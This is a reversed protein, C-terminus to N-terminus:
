RLEIPSSCPGAIWPCPKESRPAALPLPPSSLATNAGVGEAVSVTVPYRSETAPRSAGCPRAAVAAARLAPGAAAARGALATGGPEIGLAANRMASADGAGPADGVARPPERPAPVIEAAVFETTPRVPAPPLIGLGKAVAGPRGARTSARARVAGAPEACGCPTAVGPVPRPPPAPAAPPAAAAPAASSPLGLLRESGPGCRAMGRMVSCCISCSLRLDVSAIERLAAVATPEGCGLM